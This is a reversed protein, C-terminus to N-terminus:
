VGEDVETFWSLRRDFAIAGRYCIGDSMLRSVLSRVVHGSVVEPKRGKGDLRIEVRAGPVLRHTSEVLMGVASLDVISAEHGPRIRARAVDNKAPRQRKHLRRDPQHTTMAAAM